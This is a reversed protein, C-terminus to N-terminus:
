LRKGLQFDYIGFSGFTMGDQSSSEPLILFNDIFFPNGGTMDDTPIGPTGLTDSLAERVEDPDIFGSWIQDPSDGFIDTEKGAGAHIVAISGYRSFDTTSDTSDVVEMMLESMLFDYGGEGSGYYGETRSVLIVEHHLDTILRFSELSAGYYYERLHRLENEFYISDHPPYTETEDLFDRDQFAVRIALIRLSDMSGTAGATLNHIARKQYYGPRELFRPLTPAPSDIVTEAEPLAAAASLALLIVAITLSKM